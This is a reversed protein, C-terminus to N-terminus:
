RQLDHCSYFLTNIEEGTKKPIELCGTILTKSFSVLCRRPTSCTNRTDYEFNTPEMRKVEINSEDDSFDSSIVSDEDTFSEGDSFTSDEDSDLDDWNLDDDIGSRDFFFGIDEDEEDESLDHSSSAQETNDVQEIVQEFPEHSTTNSLPCCVGQRENNEDIANSVGRSGGFSNDNISRSNDEKKSESSDVPLTSVPGCPLGAHCASKAQMTFSPQSSYMSQMEMSQHYVDQNVTRVLGEQTTQVFAPLNGKQYCRVTRFTSTASTGGETILNMAYLQKM